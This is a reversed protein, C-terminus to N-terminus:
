YENTKNRTHWQGFTDKMNINILKWIKKEYNGAIGKNKWSDIAMLTEIM